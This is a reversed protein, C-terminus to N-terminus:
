SFFHILQRTPFMEKICKNTDRWMMWRLAHMRTHTHTQASAIHANARLCNVRNKKENNGGLRKRDKERANKKVSSICTRHMNKKWPPQTNNQTHKKLNLNEKSRKSSFWKFVTKMEAVKTPSLAICLCRYLVVYAAFHCIFIRSSFFVRRITMEDYAISLCYKTIYYYYHYFYYDTLPLIRKNVRAREKDKM